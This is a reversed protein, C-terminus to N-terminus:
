RVKVRDVLISRYRTLKEPRCGSKGVVISMNM